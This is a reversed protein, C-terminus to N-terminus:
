FCADAFLERIKEAAIRLRVIFHVGAAAAEEDGVEFSLLDCVIMIKGFENIVDVGIGDMMSECFFYGIPCPARKM